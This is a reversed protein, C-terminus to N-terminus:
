TQAHERYNQVSKNMSDQAVNIIVNHKLKLDIKKSHTNKKRTFSVLFPKKSAKFSM